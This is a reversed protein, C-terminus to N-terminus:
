RLVYFAYLSGLYLIMVAASDLGIGFVRPKERRLLGLVYVLTVVIGSVLAMKSTDDAQALLAGERYLLDAPLLIFVMLLNSGFINSIAMTFAGMRVAAITTSLEPLSTTTALLTVGVFSNGLSSQVAITECVEVLLMGCVLIVLAAGASHLLLQRIGKTGDHLDSTSLDNADASLEHNAKEYRHLGYVFLLYTGALVVAGLGLGNLLTVEGVNVLILMAGLLVALLVGELVPTWKRPMSTLVVRIAVMDAIVLIATQMPIGGLMNNLALPANGKWAATGTTVLEPLETIGGLFVLGMIAQGLGLHDGIAGALHSLRTGAIWICSALLAFAVINLALPM